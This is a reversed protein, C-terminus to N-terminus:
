EGRAEKEKRNLNHYVLAQPDRLQHEIDTVREEIDTLRLSRAARAM